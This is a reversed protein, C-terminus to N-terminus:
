SLIVWMCELFCSYFWFKINKTKLKKINTIGSSEGTIRITIRDSKREVKRQATMYKFLSSDVSSMAM